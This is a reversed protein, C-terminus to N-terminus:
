KKGATSYKISVKQQKTYYSVPIELLQKICTWDTYINDNIVLKVACIPNDCEEPICICGQLSSQTITVTESNQVAKLM